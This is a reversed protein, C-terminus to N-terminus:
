FTYRVGLQGQRRAYDGTAATFDLANQIPQYDSHNVSNAVNFVDASVIMQGRPLTFAKGIRLDITRYWYRWGNHRWTRSGNPWDDDKTGNRNVDSGVTVFFPRPSAMVAITSLQVGFPAETLGSLVVRHREDGDSRQMRYLSSDVFDSTTLAGFESKASGLTYAASWHTAQGDFNLSALLARYTADGFSGWLTIDGYVNTLPRQRAANLTNTKVTVPLNRMHQDLYDASLTLRETIRHSVGASWQRTSPTDM